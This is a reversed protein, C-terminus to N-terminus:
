GNASSAKRDGFIFSSIYGVVFTAVSGILVWWTFPIKTFQWMCVNLAFGVFMGAM